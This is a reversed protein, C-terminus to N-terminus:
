KRVQDSKRRLSGIGLSGDSVPETKGEASGGKMDAEIEKIAQLQEPKFDLEERVFPPLIHGIVPRGGRGGPGEGAEPPPGGPGRRRGRPPPGGEEPGGDPGGPGRDFGRPGDPPGDPGGPPRGPGGRGVPGRRNQGPRGGAPRMESRDIVGDKNKDLATLVNSANKIEEASLDGDGDADLAEMVPNRPSGM